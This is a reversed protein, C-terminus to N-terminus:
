VNILGGAEAVRSLHHDADGFLTDIMTMRKFYHGIKYEMTMGVGGHLQIAQQGIFRGSRGIQVKAGAVAAAREAPDPSVTTMTAFMAMSRAQELAVVMEAARHQLGQFAGIHTGFQQRTKLYDVTIAQMEEMCGVAEACLAAIAEDTVREIVPVASGPDGLAAEAPVHVGAFAIEAARQGDQTPYGRRSVGPADADVLFLGVGDRDRASGATRASVILRGASDGHLVLGKQGDIRWGSGDRTATTAVDFLDYRAQREAHAFAMRLEGAAIAPLHAAKQSPDGAHRILGGALIVTALYPEVVLAHGFAEMLIMTEVPGGGFGGDQESFPLGLLGLEAFQAWVAPSFGPEAALIRKRDAFGYADGLLREVSDKLMRQEETLDFDM